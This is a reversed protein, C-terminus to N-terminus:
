GGAEAEEADQHREAVRHQRHAAFLRQGLDVALDLV